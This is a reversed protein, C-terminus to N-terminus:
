ELKRLINADMILSYLLLVKLWKEPVFKLNVKWFIRFDEAQELYFTLYIKIFEVEDEM